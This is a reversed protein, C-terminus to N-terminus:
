LRSGVDYFSYVSSHEAFLVAIFMLIVSYVTQLVLISMQRQFRDALPFCNCRRERDSFWLEETSHWLLIPVALAERM